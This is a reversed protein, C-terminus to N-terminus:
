KRENKKRVNTEIQLLAEVTHLRRERPHALSTVVTPTFWSSTKHAPLQSTITWTITGITAGLRLHTVKSSLHTINVSVEGRSVPIRAM